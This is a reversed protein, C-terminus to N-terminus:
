KPCPFAERLALLLAMGFDAADLEGWEPHKEIAQEMIRLHQDGIIAINPQCYLLADNKRELLANAAELGRGAGVINGIFGADGNRAFRVIDAATVRANGYASGSLCGLALLLVGLRRM